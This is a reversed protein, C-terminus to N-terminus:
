SPILTALVDAQTYGERLGNDMRSYFMDNSFSVASVTYAAPEEASENLWLYMHRVGKGQNNCPVQAIYGGQGPNTFVDFSTVGSGIEDMLYEPFVIGEPKPAFSPNAKPTIIGEDYKAIMDMIATGVAGRQRATLNTAVPSGAATAFVDDLMERYTEYGGENIDYGLAALNNVLETNPFIFDLQEPTLAAASNYDYGLNNLVFADDEAIGSAVLKDIEDGTMYDGMFVSGPALAKAIEEDTLNIMDQYSFSQHHLSKIQEETLGREDILIRAEGESMTNMGTQSMYRYRAQLRDIPYIGTLGNEEIHTVLTNLDLAFRDSFSYIDACRGADRRNAAWERFREEGVLRIFSVDIMEEWELHIFEACAVMGSELAVQKQEDTMAEFRAKQAQLLNYEEDTLGNRGGVAEGTLRISKALAQLEGDSIKDAEFEFAVYALIDRNYSVIGKNTKETGGNINASYYVDCVATVGRPTEEVARYSDRVDFSYNNGLAIQNYIAQPLDEAGEYEEYINYGVAGIQGGGGDLIELVSWVGSLAIDVPFEGAPEREKLTWGEPLLFSLSVPRDYIAGNFETRGRESVPFNVTMRTSQVEPSIEEDEERISGANDEFRAQIYYGEDRRRVSITLPVGNRYTGNWRWGGGVVDDAEIVEGEGIAELAPLAENEYYAIISELTEDTEM